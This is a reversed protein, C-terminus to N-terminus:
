YLSGMIGPPGTFSMILLSRDDNATNENVQHLSHRAKFFQMDGANLELRVIWSRDGNLV